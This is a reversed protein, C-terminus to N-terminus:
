CAYELEEAFSECHWDIHQDKWQEIMRSSFESGATMVVAATVTVSDSCM